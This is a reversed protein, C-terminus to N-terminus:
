ERGGARRLIRAAASRRKKVAVSLPTEGEWDKANVNAGAALLAKIANVNGDWAAAHLPPEYDRSIANPNAGAALLAKITNVEDDMAADVLAYNIDAGGALLADIAETQGYKAAYNLALSKPRAGGALLAKIAEVRGHKAALTLPGILGDTRPDPDAGGALLANITNAKGQRAASHLPTWYKLHNVNDTGANPDAGGALLANVAGVNGLVAAWHLPRANLQKKAPNKANANAGAGLLAKVRAVDGAKVAAFLNSPDTAERKLKAEAEAKRRAEAEARRRAEAQRAAAELDALHRKAMRAYAGDQYEALYDECYRANDNEACKKWYADEVAARRRKAEEEERRRAEARRKAEAEAAARRRAEEEERRKAEAETKRRAEAEARRKAEARRVAAEIDALRRKAMRAYAGDQYEALYDKCYRANDNEECKKWWADEAAVRRRAADARQQALEAYYTGPFHKAVLEFAAVTNDENAKDFAEAVDDLANGGPVAPTGGGSVIPEPNCSSAPDAELHSRDIGALPVHGTDSAVLEPDKRDVREMYVLRMVRPELLLKGTGVERTWEARLFMEEGEGETAVVTVGHRRLAASFLGALHKSLRLYPGGGREHFDCPSVYMGGKEIEVGNVKATLVLWDTLKGVAQDLTDFTQAPTTSSWLALLVGAMLRRM